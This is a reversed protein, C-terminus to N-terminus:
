LAKLLRLKEKRFAKYFLKINPYFNHKLFIILLMLPLNRWEQLYALKFKMILAM